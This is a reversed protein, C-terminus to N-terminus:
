QLPDDQKTSLVFEGGSRQNLTALFHGSVKDVEGTLFHYARIPDSKM